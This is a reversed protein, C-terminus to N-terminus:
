ENPQGPTPTTMTKWNSSGDPFRGYSVDPTQQGFEVTDIAAYNNAATNFLGIQDGATALKFNTHTSGQREDNDAWFVLFGGAPIATGDPVRWKTPNALDDTLYM